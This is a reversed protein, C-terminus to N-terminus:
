QERDSAEHIYKLLEMRIQCYMHTTKECLHADHAVAQEFMAKISDYREVFVASDCNAGLMEAWVNANKEEHLKELATILRKTALCSESAEKFLKAWVKQAQSLETFTSSFYSTLDDRCKKKANTSIHKPVMRAVKKVVAFDRQIECGILMSMERCLTQAKKLAVDEDNAKSERSLAASVVSLIVLLRAAISKVLNSDTTASIDRLARDCFDVGVAKVSLESPQNSPFKELLGDWDALEDKMSVMKRCLRRVGDVFVECADKFSAGALVTKPHVVTNTQIYGEIALKLLCLHQNIHPYDTANFLIRMDQVMTLYDSVGGFKWLVRERTREGSGKYRCLMAVWDCQKDGAGGQYMFTALRILERVCYDAIVSQTAFEPLTEASHFKQYWEPVVTKETKQKKPPPKDNSRDNSRDEQMDYRRRAQPDSLVEYAKKVRKFADECLDRVNQAESMHRDPHWKLALRKYASKLDEQPADPSLGLAAYHCTAKTTRTAADWTAREADTMEPVATQPAAREKAAAQAEHKELISRANAVLTDISLHRTREACMSAKRLWYRARVLDGQECYSAMKETCRHVFDQTEEMKPGLATSYSNKTPRKPTPDPTVTVSEYGDVLFLWRGFVRWIGLLVHGLQEEM